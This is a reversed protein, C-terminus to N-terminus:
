SDDGYAEVEAEEELPNRSEAVRCLGPMPCYECTKAGYKPDIAAEGRLFDEALALLASEWEDQIVDSYAPRGLVTTARALPLLQRNLDAVTGAFRMNGVRIRAFLAGCVNGVGGFLAYLPLQPENPRPGEWDKPSVEGTKYDILLREGSELEDIRDARLRLKLDGVQVEDLKKECEIVKFPVRAAELEMWERLRGLLRRREGALYASLWPDGVGRFKETFVQEIAADLIAELRGERIAEQLERLSHLAGENPSWVKHLVRHLLDGREAASLGWERRDLPEAGLRKSAFAQFPCAAQFKLVESGGASQDVPWPISASAEELEELDPGVSEERSQADHWVADLPLLPSPRLDGDKNRQAHSFIVVPASEAIRATVATALELDNAADAYPMGFRRQVDNPLLPHPRGTLPWSEDDVGLFWVADFQQGSAELAGMVQVPAGHSEPSFITEAAHAELTRLFDDYSIRQGDFDLLAIEDLAREWRRLTQFHISDRESAGPWGVEFLLLQALDAWQGPPRDEREIRSATAIKRASSLRSLPAFGAPGARRLLDDLAVEGSIPSTRRLKRDQQAASLHDAGSLYGSLLLWSVEEEHLPGTLWRLLLLAARIAPASALPQGLSFEFPMAQASSIDDAQPMLVRRFIREMEGRVVNMDPVLVGIRAEPNPELWERVQWACSAIEDRLGAARVFETQTAACALEARRVNVGREQLANLLRRQAPTIRDFGVLLIAQPLDGQDLGASLKAELGARPMWNRRACEREFEAAWHRFREADAKVWSSKREGHAKYASLLAYAGEALAAMGAPSVVRAADERQMRAWVSREQLSTLLLPADGLALAWKEWQRRLWTEWDEIPPTAWTRRGAERQRLGYERQLWRAARANATLVTAGSAFAREIEEAIRM